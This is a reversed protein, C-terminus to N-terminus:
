LFVYNYGFPTHHGRKQGGGLINRLGEGVYFGFLIPQRSELIRKARATPTVTPRREPPQSAVVNTAVLLTKIKKKKEGGNWWKM